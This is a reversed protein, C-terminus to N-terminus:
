AAEEFGSIRGTVTAADTWLIVHEGAGVIEGTLKYIGDAQITINPEILDANTPTTGTSIYVKVTAAVSGANVINVSVTQVKGTPVASTDLNTNAPLIGAWFKGSAM